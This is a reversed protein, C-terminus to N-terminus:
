RGSLLHAGNATVDAWIMAPGPWDAQAGTLAELADDPHAPYALRLQREFQAAVTKTARTRRGVLLRSIAPPEGLMPWGDWSPLSRAKEDAWRILEELRNIESQIETAVVVRQRAEHFALDIWGKSPRLVRVEPFPRWRPHVIELLGEAIRAQHRDRVLPGTNPYLRIALDAGLAVALRARTSASPGAQGALVRYLRARDVGSLRALEPISLGADSRLREVDDRFKAAAVAEVRMAARTLTNPHM